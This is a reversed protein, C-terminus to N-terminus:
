RRRETACAFAIMSASKIGSTRVTDLPRPRSPPPFAGQGGILPRDQPDQADGISGTDRFAMFVPAEGRIM